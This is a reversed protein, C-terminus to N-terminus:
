FVVNIGIGLGSGDPASAPGLWVKPEGPLPKRSPKADWRAVSKGVVVGLAAGGVVDSLRHKKLALRSGAVLGAALYGPVAAKWGYQETWVAACAFANSAHGSPFALHDSHDPRDRRISEKIILTYFFNVVVAQSMDYTAARFRDGNAYRGAGLIATSVGAAVVGTGLFKGVDGYTKMPHRDFYRIASADGVFSIATAGTGILFPFLSPRTWVEVVNHGLNAPYSRVTRHDRVVIPEKPGHETPPVSPSPSPSPPPPPSPEQMVEAWLPGALGGAFVLIAAITRPRRSKLPNSM